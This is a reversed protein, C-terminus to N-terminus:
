QQKDIKEKIANVTGVFKRIVADLTGVFNSIPAVINGCVRAALEDRSPLKAIREVDAGGYVQGDICIARITPREHQKGFDYLIKAVAGPDSPGFAVATPGSLFKDLGNVGAEKAAIKLLTNKAVLYSINKQRLEKRLMTAKEVTLGSYDTVALTSAKRFRETIEAVEAIKEQNPM